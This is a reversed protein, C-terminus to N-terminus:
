RMRELFVEESINAPLDPASMEDKFKLLLNHMVVASAIVARATELKCRLEYLLAPFRKKLMGFSHEIIIRTKKLSRNFSLAKEKQAHDTIKQLQAERVVTLLVDSCGFGEDGILFQPESLSFRDELAARLHSENWIKADHASGAHRSSFYRIRKKHDCTM